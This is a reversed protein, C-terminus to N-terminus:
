RGAIAIDRLVAAEFQVEDVRHKLVDGISIVGVLRDGEMVPLHRVRRETMLHTVHAITDSPSCTVTDHTMLASVPLTLLKNEDTALAHVVDRESIIGELSHGDKSVIMAGVGALRLLQVFKLITDDPRITLVHSNKKSRLVSQVIMATIRFKLPRAM